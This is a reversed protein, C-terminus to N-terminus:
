GLRALTHEHSDTARRGAATAAAAQRSRRDRRGPDAPLCLSFREGLPEPDTGLQSPDPLRM